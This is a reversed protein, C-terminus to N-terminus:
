RIVPQETQQAVDVRETDISLMAAPWESRDARAALWPPLKSILVIVCGVAYAALWVPPEALLQTLHGQVALWCCVPLPALLVGVVAKEMFKAGRLRWAHLRNFVTVWVACHGCLVVTALLFLM